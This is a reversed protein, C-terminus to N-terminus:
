IFGALALATGAMWCVVVSIAFAIMLDTAGLQSAALALLALVVLLFAWTLLYRNDWYVRKM